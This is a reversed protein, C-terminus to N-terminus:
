SQQGATNGLVNAVSEPSTRYQPKSNVKEDDSTIRLTAKLENLSTIMSPMNSWIGQTREFTADESKKGSISEKLKFENLADIQLNLIRCLAFYGRKVPETKFADNEKQLFDVKKKEEDYLKKYDITEEM